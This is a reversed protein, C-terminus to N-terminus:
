GSPSATWAARFGSAAAAAVPKGLYAEIVAPDALAQACSGRSIVRGADLVVVDDVISTLFPINHEVLIVTLGADKLRRVISAIEESEEHTMGATPEDLLLVRPRLALARAIELRRQQGYPLTGALSERVEHLGALRLLSAAGA